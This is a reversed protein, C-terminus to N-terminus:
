VELISGNGTLAFIRDHRKPSIAHSGTFVGFSPLIGQWERFYFCLLKLYARGKGRLKISPHIHGSINYGRDTQEDLPEHTFCFPGKEMSQHVILGKKEFYLDSHVDHNGKVLHFDLEHLNALNDWFFDTENNEASHFLDGLFICEKVDQAYIAEFLNEVNKIIAAKPVAFGNKRFHMVKGIHLDAIIICKEKPWFLTKNACLLLEEQEIQIALSSGVPKSKQKSM